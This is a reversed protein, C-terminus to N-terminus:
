AREELMERMLGSLADRHDGFAFDEPQPLNSTGFPYRAIDTKGVEGKANTTDTQVRYVVSVQDGRPDRDAGVLVCCPAFQEPDALCETEEPVERVIAELHSEYPDVGGGVM